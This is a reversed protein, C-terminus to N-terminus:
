AEGRQPPHIVEADAGDIIEILKFGALFGQQQFDDGIGGLGGGEPSGPVAKMPSFEFDKGQWTGGPGNRM